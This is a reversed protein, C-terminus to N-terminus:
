FQSSHSPEILISILSEEENLIIFISTNFNRRQVNPQFRKKELIFYFKIKLAIAFRINQVCQITNARRIESLFSCLIMM